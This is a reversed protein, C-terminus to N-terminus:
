AAYRHAHTNNFKGGFFGPWDFPHFMLRVGSFHEKLARVLPSGPQTWVAGPAFTGHALIVIADPAGGLEQVSPFTPRMVDSSERHWLIVGAAILVITSLVADFTRGISVHRAM